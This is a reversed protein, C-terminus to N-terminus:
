NPPPPEPVAKSSKGKRQRTQTSAVEVSKVGSDDIGRGMIAETKRVVRKTGFPPEFRARITAIMKGFWYVNLLTLTLNSGLYTYAMWTPVEKGAAYRMVQGAKGGVLGTVSSTEAAMALWSKGAATQQYELARFVDTFVCYAQWVGWALRSGFFSVMLLIGNYLQLNSGTMNLKDCFWHINLFPSSLEFLIFSPAYYNM